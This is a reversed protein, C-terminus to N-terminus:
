GRSVVGDVVTVAGLDVAWDLLEGRSAYEMITPSALIPAKRFGRSLVSEQAAASDFDSLSRGIIGAAEFADAIADASISAAAGQTTTPAEDEDVDPLFRTDREEVPQAVYDEPARRVIYSMFATYSDNRGRPFSDVGSEVVFAVGIDSSIPQGTTPDIDPAFDAGMAKNAWREYRSRLTDPKRNRLGPTLKVMAAKPIALWGGERIAPLDSVKLANKGSAYTLPIRFRENLNVSADDSERALRYSLPEMEIVLSAKPSWDDYEKAAEECSEDSPVEVRMGVLRLIEESLERTSEDFMSM